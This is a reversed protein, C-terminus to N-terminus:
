YILYRLWEILRIQEAKSLNHSQMILILQTAWLNTFLFPKFPPYAKLMIIALVIPIRLTTRLPKFDLQSHTALWKGSYSTVSDRWSSMTPTNSLRCTTNSKLTWVLVTILSISQKVFYHYVVTAPQVSTRVGSLFLGLMVYVSNINVYLNTNINIYISHFIDTTPM